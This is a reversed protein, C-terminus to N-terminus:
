IRLAGPRFGGLLPGVSFGILRMTTYFGMSGGRTEKKTLAALLAMSAPVTIAVGIGQLIRLGLLDLFRGAVIFAATGVAMFGLGIQIMLKRNGLKDSLAGTFPQLFTNIFGYSSILIGIMIPLPLHFLLDPTRAVYLPIIVILISNGLADAMRAVSLAVVGRNMGLREWRNMRERGSQNPQALDEGAPRPSVASNSDAPDHCSM